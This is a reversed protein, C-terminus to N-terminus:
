DVVWNFNSIKVGLWNALSFGVNGNDPVYVLDWTRGVDSQEILLGSGDWTWYHRYAAPPVQNLRGAVTSGTAVTWYGSAAGGGVITFDFMESRPQVGPASIGYGPAARSSGYVTLTSASIETLGLAAATSEPQYVTFKPGMANDYPPTLVAATGDQLWFADARMASGNSDPLEALFGADKDLVFHSTTGAFYGQMLLYKGLPSWAVAELFDPATSDNPDLITIQRQRGDLVYPYEYIGTDDLMLFYDDAGGASLQPGGVAMNGHTIGSHQQLDGPNNTAFATLRVTEDERVLYAAWTGNSSVLMTPRFQESSGTQEPPLGTEVITVDLNTRDVLAIEVSQGLDRTQKILIFRGNENTAMDLIHATADEYVAVAADAKRWVALNGDLNFVLSQSLAPP